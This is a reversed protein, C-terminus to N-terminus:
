SFSGMLLVIVLIVLIIGLLVLIIAMLLKEPTGTVVLM